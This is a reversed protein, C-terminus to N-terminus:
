ALAGLWTFRFGALRDKSTTGQSTYIFPWGQTIQIYIFCYYKAKDIEWKKFDIYIVGKFFRGFVMIEVTLKEADWRDQWSKVQVDTKFRLQEWKQKSGGKDNQICGSFLQWSGGMDYCNEDKFDLKERLKKKVENVM